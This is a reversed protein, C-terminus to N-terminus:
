YYHVIHKGLLGEVIFLPLELGFVGPCKRHYENDLTHCMANVMLNGITNGMAIEKKNGLVNSIANGMTNCISSGMANGM